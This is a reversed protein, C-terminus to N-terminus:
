QFVKRMRQWLSTEGPAEDEDACIAHTELGHPLALPIRAAGSCEAPVISTGGASVYQWEIGAPASAVLPSAQLEQMLPTWIKLAGSAGTLGTAGNDDRGVWVIVLYDGGFGAFWSDRGDNSTGTKGGLPLRNALALGAARATGDRVTEALLYQLLFATEGSLVQQVRPPYRSLTKNRADSVSRIARLPVKFGDNAIGQYLQAVELPSVDLAGLLLSPLASPKENLGMSFLRDAIGAVGLDLGLQVTALNYSRTLAESLSVSGHTEDDYNKPTWSEGNALPVAITEDHLTTAVNYDTTRDLAISYVFPKVLSGFPRRANLARNFEAARGDRGGVLAVIEATRPNLVVVALELTGRKIKTAREIGALSDAAIRTATLQIHSDITTFIRLGELQLDEDRYDRRLQDRILENVAAFEGASIATEPALRLDEALAGSYDVSSIMERSKLLDLITHLRRSAAEPHRKPNYASPAKVMGVLMAMEALNLESLPKAFYFRSALGFGHIARNGSQGLFIENVYGELIERKTYRRELSIAILAERIKRTWSRANSLYLNKVLQQTITSGGEAVRGALINTVAARAIGIGDLGFHEYFRRDEVAVLIELFRPPVDDVDLLVRDEFEDGHVVGIEVPEIRVFPVSEARDLDVISAIVGAAFSVLIKRAPEEDDPFAVQRTFVRLGEDSRVFVGPQDLAGKRVYGVASLNAELETRGLRVGAFLEQPAAYVRAPLQWERMSASRSVGTDIWFWYALGALVLWLSAHRLYFFIIRLWGRNPPRKRRSPM